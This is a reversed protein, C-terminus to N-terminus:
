EVIGALTLEIKKRGTMPNTMPVPDADLWCFSVENPYAVPSWAFFFPTDQQAASVFPDFYTRYWDPRLHAFTFKASEIWQAAIVRGLFDGRVARGSVVETRRSFRPPTLDPGIDFGREVILLKGVYLVAARAAASGASLRVVLTVVPQATFWFLLPEDNPPVQPGALSVWEAPSGDEYYGVEVAIGATGFNHRAIGVGDIDDASSPTVEIEVAGAASARWEENTSANALNTVPFDADASDVAINSTTVINRWLILPVGAPPADASLVLSSSIVLM